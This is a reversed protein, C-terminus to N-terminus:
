RQGYGLQELARLHVQRLQAALERQRQVSLWHAPWAARYKAFEAADIKGFVGEERMKAIEEATYGLQTGLIMRTHEGMMPAQAHPAPARLPRGM